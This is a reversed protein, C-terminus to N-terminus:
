GVTRKRDEKGIGHANLENKKIALQADETEDEPVTHVMKNINICKNM